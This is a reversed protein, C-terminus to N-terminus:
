HCPRDVELLEVQSRNHDIQTDLSFTLVAKEVLSIAVLTCVSCSKSAVKYKECSVRSLLHGVTHIHDPYVTVAVGGSM